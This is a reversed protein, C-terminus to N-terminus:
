APWYSKREDSLWAGRALGGAGLRYIWEMWEWQSAKYDITTYVVSDVYIISKDTVIAISFASHGEAGFTYISEGAPLQGAYVGNRGPGLFQPWDQGHVAQRTLLLLILIATIRHAGPGVPHFKGGVTTEVVRRAIV